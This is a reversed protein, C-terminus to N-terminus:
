KAFHRATFQFASLAARDYLIEKRHNVGPLEMYEHTIKLQELQDNTRRNLELLDDKNGLVIRIALRNRIKDANHQALKIPDSQDFFQKSDGFTTKFIKGSKERLEDAQPLVAGYAVVSSFVDPYKFGLKLAGFGGMSFGHVARGERMAVSRFTEDIHPILEKVIATEALVKGDASDSYFSTKGGNVFVLIMPAVLKNRIADNLIRAYDLYSSEDGDLGHLYYVVPYHMEGKAYEPPLYINYGVEVGMGSSKFVGHQLGALLKGKPPNNWCEDAGSAHLAALLALFIPVLRLQKFPRAMKFCDHASFNECM